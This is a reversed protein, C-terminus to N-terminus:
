APSLEVLLTTITTDAGNEDQAGDVLFGSKNASNFIPILPLGYMRALDLFWSATLKKFVENGPGGVGLNGTDVGRWRVCACEVTVQYGILAYDTNARLLDTEANIAEEGSYGGATGLAITNDVAVLNVGRTMLEDPMILRAEVGPLNDYYLLLCLTEIDGAVASGEIGLALQDQAILKQPPGYGLLPQVESAVSDVTIGRVNDHLRPSRIQLAGLAQQDSWAQILLIKSDIPANRVSASNGAAMTLAAFTTVGPATAFGTLLELAKM